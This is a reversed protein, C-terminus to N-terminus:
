GSSMLLTADPDDNVRLRKADIDLARGVRYSINGLHCATSVLSGAEISARSSDGVRISQVFSQLANRKFESSGAFREDRNGYVKWGSRDVVLTGREGYFATGSTRGEIGRTGWQRHEWVVDVSPYEYTVTLTDPTERDDRFTRIGGTSSVRKPLGLKLAWFALDLNHTGWRGLEGAGYDWFWNWDSHFRNATFPRHQAPGLWREYDVGRPPTSEACYGISKRQHVAWARALPVRGLFGSQVLEVASQFHAGYRQPLGAQVVCSSKAAVRRIRDVDEVTHATPTELYLHRGSQLVDVAQQAHWHNPTAIVVADLDPRELMMQHDSFALPRSNQIEKLDAQGTSLRAVDVDCIATVQVDGMGAFSKALELGQDGLGIVGVQLRDVPSRVDKLGMMGVTLCAANRSSSELFERRSYSSQEGAPVTM